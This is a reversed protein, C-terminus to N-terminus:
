TESRLTRFSTRFTAMQGWEQWYPVRVLVPHVNVTDVSTTPGNVSVCPSKAMLPAAKYKAFAFVSFHISAPLPPQVSMAPTDPLVPFVSEGFALNPVADPTTYQEEQLAGM